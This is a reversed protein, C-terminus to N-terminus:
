LKNQNALAKTMIKKLVKDSRQKPWTLRNGPTYKIHIKNAKELFSKVATFFKEPYKKL